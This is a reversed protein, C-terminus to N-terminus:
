LKSAEEQNGAKVTSILDYANKSLWSYHQKSGQTGYLVGLLVVIGRTIKSADVNDRLSPSYYNSSNAHGVWYAEFKEKFGLLLQIIKRALEVREQRLNKVGSNEYIDFPYVNM